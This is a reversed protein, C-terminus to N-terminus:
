VNIKPQFTLSKASHTLLCVTAFFNNNGRCKKPFSKCSFKDVNFGVTPVIDLSRNEENKLQNIVTSKGSNNLGVVLINVEKKRLGVLNAIRDLIGM